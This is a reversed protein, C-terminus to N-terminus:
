KAQWYLTHLIAAAVLCLVGGAVYGCSWVIGGGVLLGAFSYRLWAHPNLLAALRDKLYSLM